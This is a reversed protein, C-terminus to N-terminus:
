EIERLINKEKGGVPTKEENKKKEREREKV